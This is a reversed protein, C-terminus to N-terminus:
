ALWNILDAVRQQLTSLDAGDLQPAFQKARGLMQELTRPSTCRGSKLAEDLVPPLNLLALHHGVTTPDM